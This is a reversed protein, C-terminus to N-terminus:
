TPSQFVLGEEKEDLTSKAISHMPIELPIKTKNQAISVSDNKIMSWSLSKVHVWSLGTYLFFVIAKKVEHNLCPTNMLKSYDEATLIEKLKKNGGVKAPLEESPNHRFYGDKTAKKLVRKFRMFYGSPTESHYKTLLYDHFKRCLKENIDKTAISEKGIFSKFARFSNELQRNGFKRDSKVFAEYYELFNSKLKHQLFYGSSYAQQNLIM